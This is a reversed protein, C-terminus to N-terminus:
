IGAVRRDEIALVHDAAARGKRHLLLALGEHDLVGPLTFRRGLEACGHQLVAQEVAEALAAVEKTDVRLRAHGEPAVDGHVAVAPSTRRSRRRAAAARSASAATGAARSGSIQARAPSRKM